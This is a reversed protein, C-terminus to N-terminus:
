PAPQTEYIGTVQSLLETINTIMNLRMGVSDAIGEPSTISVPSESEAIQEVPKVDLKDTTLRYEGGTELDKRVVVNGWLTILSGNNEARGHDATIKWPTQNPQESFLTLFPNSLDTYGRKAELPRNQANYRLYQEAKDVVLLYQLRGTAAFQRTKSNQINAAPAQSQTETAPKTQTIEPNEWLLIVLVFLGAIISTTLIKKLM